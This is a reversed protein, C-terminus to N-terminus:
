RNIFKYNNTLSLVHTPLVLRRWGREMVEMGTRGSRATAAAAASAASSTAAVIVVMETRFIRGCDAAFLYGDYNTLNLEALLSTNEFTAHNFGCSACVKVLNRSWSARDLTDCSSSLRKNLSSITSETEGNGPGADRCGLPLKLYIDFVALMIFSVNLFCIRPDNTMLSVRM